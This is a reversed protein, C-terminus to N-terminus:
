AARRGTLSASYTSWGCFAGGYGRLQISGSLSGDANVQYVASGSTPSYICGTVSTRATWNNVMTAQLRGDPVVTVRSGAVSVGAMDLDSRRLPFCASTSGLWIAGTAPAGAPFGSRLCVDLPNVGNTTGASTVTRHMTVTGGARFATGSATGDITVNWTALAAPAAQAPSGTLVTATLITATMLLKM